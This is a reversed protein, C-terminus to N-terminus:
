SRVYELGDTTGDYHKATWGKHHKNTGAAVGSIAPQHLSHVGCFDSLHVVNYIEGGPSRLTFKEGNSGVKLRVYELGDTTGDYHKATWGKHHKNKGAAVHSLGSRILGHLKCFSNLREVEHIEGDPSRLTWKQSMSASVKDKTAQTHKVGICSRLAERKINLTPNLTDIYFQEREICKSPEVLELLRFVFTSEGYKDFSRQV